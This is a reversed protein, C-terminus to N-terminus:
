ILIQKTPIFFKNNLYLVNQFNLIKTVKTKQELSYQTIYNLMQHYEYTIIMDFFNNPIM